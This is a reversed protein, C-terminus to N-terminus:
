FSMKQWIKLMSSLLIIHFFISNKKLLIEIFFDCFYDLFLRTQSM